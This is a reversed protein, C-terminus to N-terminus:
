IIYRFFRTLYTKLNLEKTVNSDNFLYWDEILNINIYTYYHGNELSSEHCLIAYLIYNFDKNKIIDTDIYPNINLEKNFFNKCNNKSNTLPNFRQFLLNLILPLSSIKIQKKHEACKQM